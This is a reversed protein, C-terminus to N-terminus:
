QLRPNQKQYKYLNIQCGTSYWAWFASLFLGIFGDKYGKNLLFSKGFEIIPTKIIVLLSAKEGKAYRTQGEKRLYRKHKEVLERYSNLWYHHIYGARSFDIEFISYGDKVTRGNHVENTFECRNKRALLLRFKQGGWVTGKLLRDKFYYRLPAIIGGLKPDDNWNNFNEIIYERFGPAMYEDPDIILVWNNRVFDWIETHVEEVVPVRLHNLINANVRKAITKTNDTSELDVVIIEECFTLSSLCRELLHGENCSVVVASIPLENM